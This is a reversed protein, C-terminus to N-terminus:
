PLNSRLRSFRASTRDLARIQISAEIPAGRVKFPLLGAAHVIEEPFNVQFHGVVKGGRERWRKVTPFLLTKLCSAVNTSQM